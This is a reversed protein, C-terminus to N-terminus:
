QRLQELLPAIADAVVSEMNVAGCGALATISTSEVPRMVSIILEDQPFGMAVQGCAGSAYFVDEDLAGLLSVGQRTSGEASSQVTGRTNLWWLFGYAENVESSPTLAEDVFGSSVIRDGNVEGGALYLRVLATLDRCNTQMGAFLGANGVGDLSLRSSMGLRDFLNQKAFSAVSGGVARELVVELTQVAANNYV